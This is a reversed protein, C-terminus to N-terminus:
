SQTKDCAGKTGVNNFTKRGLESYRSPTIFSSFGLSSSSKPVFTNSNSHAKQFLGLTWSFVEAEIESLGLSTVV